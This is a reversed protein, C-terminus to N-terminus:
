IIKLIHEESMIKTRFTDYINFYNNKKNCSIKYILFNCFSKNENKIIDIIDLKQIDNNFINKSDDRDGNEKIRTYININSNNKSIKQKEIM